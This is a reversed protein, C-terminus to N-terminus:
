WVGIRLSVKAIFNAKVKIGIYRSFFERRCRTNLSLTMSEPSGCESQMADLNTSIACINPMKNQEPIESRDNCVKKVAYGTM